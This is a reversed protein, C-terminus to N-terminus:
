VASSVASIRKGDEVFACQKLKGSLKFGLSVLIGVWWMYQTGQLLVRVSNVHSCTHLMHRFSRM